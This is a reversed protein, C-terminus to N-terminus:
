MRYKMAQIIKVAKNSPLKRKFNTTKDLFLCMDKSVVSFTLNSDM